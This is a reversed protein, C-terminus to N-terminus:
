PRLLGDLFARTRRWVESTPDLHEFHGEGAVVELRVDDGVATAASAYEQSVRAPVNGDADGTVMLTPVGLPLMAAPSTRDLLDQPLPRDAAESLFAAAADGGLHLEHSLALDAVGAQSM